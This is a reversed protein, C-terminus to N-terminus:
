RAKHGVKHAEGDAGIPLKAVAVHLQLDFVCTKKGAMFEVDERVGQEADALV